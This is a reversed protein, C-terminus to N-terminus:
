KMRNKSQFLMASDYAEDANMTGDAVAKFTDHLEEETLDIQIM